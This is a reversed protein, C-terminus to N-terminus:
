QRDCIQSCLAIFSIKGNECKMGLYCSRPKKSFRLWTNGTYPSKTTLMKSGKDREVYQKMWKVSEKKDKPYGFIYESRFVFDDSLYPEILDIKGLRFTYALIDILDDHSLSKSKKLKSMKYWFRLIQYYYIISM